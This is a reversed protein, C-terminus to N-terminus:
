ASTNGADLGWISRPAYGDVTRAVDAPRAPRQRLLRPLRGPRARREADRPPRLRRRRVAAGGAPAERCGARVRVGGARGRPARDATAADFNVPNPLESMVKWGTVAFRGTELASDIATQEDVAYSLPVEAFAPGSEGSSRFDPVLEPDPEVAFIGDGLEQALRVSAPGSVAVCIEPLRDPLDFVRADDLQLHKGEFSQYGGEWLLRIIQLAERAARPAQEGLPVGAGTIHENLREGSGVGLTFRGDSVIQLTAAMQAVIAPHYRFSPCTVGTVLGITSTKAAIMGM